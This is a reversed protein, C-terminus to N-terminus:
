CKIEETFTKIESVLQNLCTKISEDKISERYCIDFIQSLSYTVSNKNKKRYHEFIKIYIQFLFKGRLKLYNNEKIEQVREQKPQKYLREKLFNETFNNKNNEMVKDSTIKIDSINLEKSESEFYKETEFAFWVTINKLLENKIIIENKREFIKLLTNRGGCPLFNIQRSGIKSEINRYVFIDDSGEVLVTPLDSHNLTSIIEDITLSKNGM